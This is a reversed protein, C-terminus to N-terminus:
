SCYPFEIDGAASDGPWSYQQIEAESVEVISSWSLGCQRLDSATKVWKRLTGDTGMSIRWVFPLEPSKLLTGVPFSVVQGSADPIAALTGAPVERVNEWRYGNAVFSTASVFPLRKGNKILYVTNQGVARLLAGEQASSPSPTPAPSYTPYTVSGPTNGSAGTSGSSRNYYNNLYTDPNGPAVKGTYPNTNGPYSWNNYPNGDPSSRYHPQVYTGNSRYYGHVYVAGQAPAVAAFAGSVALLSVVALVLKRMPTLDQTLESAALDHDIRLFPV